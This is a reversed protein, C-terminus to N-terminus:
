AASKAQQYPLTASTSPTENNIYKIWNGTSKIISAFFYHVTLSLPWIVESAPIYSPPLHNSTHILGPSLGLCKWVVVVFLVSSSSEARQSPRMGATTRSLLQGVARSSVANGRPGAHGAPGTTPMSLSTTCWKPSWRQRTRFSVKQGQTNNDWEIFNWVNSTLRSMTWLFVLEVM